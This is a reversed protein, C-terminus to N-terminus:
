IEWKSLGLFSWQCNGTIKGVAKCQFSDLVDRVTVGQGLIQYLIISKDKLDWLSYQNNLMVTNDKFFFLVAGVTKGM